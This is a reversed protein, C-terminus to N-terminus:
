LIGPCYSVDLSLLQPLEALVNGLCSSGINSCGSLDLEALTRLKGLHESIGIRALSLVRLHQSRGAQSCLVRVGNDSLTRCWGLSLEEIKGLTELSEVGGDTILDCKSLDLKKLRVLSGIAVMSRDTLCRCGDLSLTELSKLHAINIIAEDNLRRCNALSLSHLRNSMSFALLGKGRISFCGDLKAVELNSLASLQMLGKDTLLQSGRLDLFTINTTASCPRLCYYGKLPPELVNGNSSICRGWQPLSSDNWMSSASEVNEGLMTHDEISPPCSLREASNSTTHYVSSASVFSSTSCSSEEMLINGNSPDELSANYFVEPHQLCRHDNSYQQPPYERERDYIDKVSKMIADLRENKYSARLTIINDHEEGIASLSANGSLTNLSELWEDTVGRCGALSLSSLECNKLARLTTANLASHKVLSAVMDDVIDQPLGPPLSSGESGVLPLSRCMIDTCLEALSKPSRLGTSDELVYNDSLPYLDFISEDPVQASCPLFCMLPPNCLTDHSFPFLLRKWEVFLHFM